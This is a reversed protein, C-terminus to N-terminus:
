EKQLVGKSPPMDYGPPTSLRVNMILTDGEFSCRARIHHPSEIYRITVDLTSDSIWEYAAAIRHSMTGGPRSILNPGALGTESEIWGGRGAAILHKQGATEMEVMWTDGDISPSFYGQNQGPDGLVFKKGSLEGAIPSDPKDAPVPLALAALREKLMALSERDEPLLTDKMAPLIYDWVLNIEDQMDPSECTITVVADKEPMIIIYQGFAGDARFANNRSRWFQFCYGQMWDSKAKAGPLADPAQDIKFTTAEDVWEAPIVQNGNWMGKQLYLQGFKAMDETKVRLGWGGSNIGEPSEEWDYGEIGLPEFLRPRLYDAIKEGTVKQVIASLMFTAMSNYLFETGPEKLVPTALFDRVWQQSSSTIRGTPDPAQGASMTLLDRVRMQALFPSVTDPLQDPFFSVVKDDVSLLKETVAFGVATSTFSKSTSYLTHRLDPRYPAWWGEAIVKGHRLIMISHFEHRDAAASDLFTLLGASSVGEAEPTSRPLSSSAPKSNKCGGSVALLVLLLFAPVARLTKM